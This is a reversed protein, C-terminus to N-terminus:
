QTKSVVSAKTLLYVFYELELALQRVKAQLVVDDM